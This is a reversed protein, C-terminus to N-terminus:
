LQVTGLLLLMGVVFSELGLARRISSGSSSSLDGVGYAYTKSFTTLNGTEEEYRTGPAASTRGVCPAEMSSAESPTPLWSRASTRSSGQLDAVVADMAHRMTWAINRKGDGEEMQVEVERLGACVVAKVPAPVVRADASLITNLVSWYIAVCLEVYSKDYLGGGSSIASRILGVVDNSSELVDYTPLPFSRPETVAEISRLRVDFSGEQFLVYVSMGRIAAANLSCGDRCSFGMRTGRDFSDMPLYVSTIASSDSLPVAFASSFDYYSTRDDFQLHLGTPPVTSGRGASRADAELTVVVGACDRLDLDIRRRVSSFGGGDLDIDGSFTM